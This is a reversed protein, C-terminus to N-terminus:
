REEINWNNTSFRLLPQGDKIRYIEAYYDFNAMGFVAIAEGSRRLELYHSWPGSGGSPKLNDFGTSWIETRWLIKGSTNEVCILPSTFGDGDDYFAVVSLDTGIDIACANWGMKDSEDEATDFIGAPLKATKGGRRAIAWEGSRNVEVDRPIQLQEGWLKGPPPSQDGFTTMKYEYIANWEPDAGLAPDFIGEEWWTPVVLKTRAEFFGIFRAAHKPDRIQPNLRDPEVMQNHLAWSSQVAIGLHDDHQLAILQDNSRGKIFSSFLKGTDASTRAQSLKQKLSEISSNDDGAIASASGALIILAINLPSTRM